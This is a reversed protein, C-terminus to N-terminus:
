VGEVEDDEVDEIDVEFETDLTKHVLETFDEYNTSAEDLEEPTTRELLERATDVSLVYIEGNEFSVEADVGEEIATHLTAYVNENIDAEEIEVDPLDKLKYAASLEGEIEPTIEPLEVDSEWLDATSEARTEEVQEMAAEKLAGRVMDQNKALISNLIQRDNKM